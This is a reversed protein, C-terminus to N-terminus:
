IQYARTSIPHSSISYHVLIFISTAVNQLQFVIRMAVCCGRIPTMQSPQFWLTLQARSLLAALGRVAESPSVAKGALEGSCKWCTTGLHIGECLASTVDPWVQRPPPSPNTSINWVAFIHISRNKHFPLPHFTLGCPFQVCGPLFSYAPGLSSLKERSSLEQGKSCVDNLGRLTTSNALQSWLKKKKWEVEFSWIVCTLDSVPFVSSCIWLIM